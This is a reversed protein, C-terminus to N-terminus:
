DSADPRPAVAKLYAAMAERDDAPLRALNEQVAVMAGGVMDFRSRYTYRDLAKYFLGASLVGVSRDFREFSLDLNTSTTARLRENGLEVEEDERNM